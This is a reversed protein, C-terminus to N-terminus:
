ANNITSSKLSVTDSARGRWVLGDGTTQYGLRQKNGTAPYQAFLSVSLFLFLISPLNKKGGIRNVVGRLIKLLAEQVIIEGVKGLM